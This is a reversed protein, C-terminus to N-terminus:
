KWREPELCYETQSERHSSEREQNEDRSRRSELRFAMASQHEEHSRAPDDSGLAIAEFFLCVGPTLGPTSPMLNRFRFRDGEM